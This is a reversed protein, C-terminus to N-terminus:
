LGVVRAVGVAQVIELGIQYSPFVILNSINAYVSIYQRYLVDKRRDVVNSIRVSEWLGTSEERESCFLLIGSTFISTRKLYSNRTAVKSCNCQPSKYM